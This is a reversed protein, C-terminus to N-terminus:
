LPLYHVKERCGEARQGNSLRGCSGAPRGCQCTRESKEVQKEIAAAIDGALKSDIGAKTEQMANEIAIKLKESKFIVHTGDRKIVTKM